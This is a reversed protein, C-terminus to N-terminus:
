KPQQRVKVTITRSGDAMDQVLADGITSSDAQWVEDVVKQLRRPFIDKAIDPDFGLKDEAGPMWQLRAVLNGASARFVHAEVGFTARLLAETERHKRLEERQLSARDETIRNQGKGFLVLRTDPDIGDDITPDDIVRGRKDLLQWDYNRALSRWMANSAQTQEFGTILSHGADLFWRYITSIIGRGTHSKKIGSHPTYVNPHFESGVLPKPKVFDVFGVAKGDVSVIITYGRQRKHIRLVTGPITTQVTESPKGLQDISRWSLSSGVDKYDYREKGRLELEQLKM